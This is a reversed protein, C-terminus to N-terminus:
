AAPVDNALEEGVRGAFQDVNRANFEASATDGINEPFVYGLKAAETRYYATDIVGRDLMDNLEAFRKARDVPVADGPVCSTIVDDFSTGEYATMWMTTLDFWMQDQVGIVLDNKEGAKSLMPGLQLALAIGSEAAQVDVRGIAIDPTSSSQKLAEWLRDYHAGYSGGLNAAGNVRNFFTGDVHAVRGPGLRWPVRQKTRPDIPESSDTAYVGIGDLALTLDEDSMTQNLAGMIRELGRLESSGFPNGPEEMNKTHYVPISTISPPLPTVPKLVTAPTATPGGWKDIEFLGDEVTIQNTGNAQPVKRYTLRRIRPGNSTEIQEVLHVGVIRDVDDDDPIPFYMAPDIATLTIRSGEPKTEDATVHWVSDGRILGYRKNGNFKAKFRERRMLADIADLAAQNDTASPGATVVGFSSCVYRNTTDILTRGSPVYIPLENSGRLAVKFVDPVNWYIEEYTQYSQIRLIDLEWPIWNPKTGFLEVGTSYPTFAGAM